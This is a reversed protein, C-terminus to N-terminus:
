SQSLGDILYLQFIPLLIDAGESGFHAVLGDDNGSYIVVHVGRNSANTALDTFFAM